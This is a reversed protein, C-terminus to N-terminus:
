EDRDITQTTKDYKNMFDSLEKVPMMIKSLIQFVHVCHISNRAATDTDMYFMKFKILGYVMYASYFFYMGDNAGTVMVM